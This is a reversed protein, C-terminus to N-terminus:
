VGFQTLHHDTHKYALVGWQTTNMQGFAPHRAWSPSPSRGFELFRALYDELRTIDRDWETPRTTLYEPATPAGRPMPLVDLMLWRLPPFALWAGKPKVPLEGLPVRFADILHCVMAPATFRGWKAPTLPDLRRVRARVVQETVRDFLTPM